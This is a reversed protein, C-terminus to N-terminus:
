KRFPKRGQSESFIYAISFVLAPKALFTWVFELMEGLVEKRKKYNIKFM